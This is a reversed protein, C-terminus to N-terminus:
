QSCYWLPEQFNVCMALLGIVVCFHFTEFRTRIAQNYHKLTIPSPHNTRTHFMGSVILFTAMLLMAGFLISTATSPNQSYNEIHRSVIKGLFYFLLYFHLFVPIKLRLEGYMIVWIVLHMLRTGGVLMIECVRGAVISGMVVLATRVALKDLRVFSLLSCAVAAIILESYWFHFNETFRNSNEIFGLCFASLLSIITM